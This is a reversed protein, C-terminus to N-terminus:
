QKREGIGRNEDFLKQIRKKLEIDKIKVLNEYITSKPINLQISAQELTWEMKIMQMAIRLIEDEKLTASRKGVKGGISRGEIQLSEQIVKIKEYDSFSIRILNNPDNIYKKICSESISFYEATESVTANNEIIFKAVTKIKDEKSMSKFNKTEM